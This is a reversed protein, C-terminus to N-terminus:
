RKIWVDSSCHVNNNCIKLVFNDDYNLSLCETQDNKCKVSTEFNLKNEMNVESNLEM